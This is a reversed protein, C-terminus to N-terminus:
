LDLFKMYKQDINLRLDKHTYMRNGNEMRKETRIGEIKLGIKSFMGNIYQMLNNNEMRDWRVNKKKGFLENLGFKVDKVLPLGKFRELM